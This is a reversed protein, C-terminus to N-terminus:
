IQITFPKVTVTLLIISMIHIHNILSHVLTLRNRQLWVIKKMVRVCIDAILTSGPPIYTGGRQYLWVYRHLDTGAGMLESVVNLRESRVRTSMKNKASAHGDDPRKRSCFLTSWCSM